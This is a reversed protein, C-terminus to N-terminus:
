RTNIQTHRLEVRDRERLDWGYQSHAAAAIEHKAADVLQDHFVDLSIDHEDSMRLVRFM